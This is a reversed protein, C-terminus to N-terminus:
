NFNQTEEEYDQDVHFGITDDIGKNLLALYKIVSFDGDEYIEFKLMGDM